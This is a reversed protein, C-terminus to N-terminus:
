FIVGPKTIDLEKLLSIDEQSLDLSELTQYEKLSVMEGIISLPDEIVLSLSNTLFDAKLTEELPNGQPTGSYRAYRINHM